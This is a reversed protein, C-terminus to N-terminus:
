RRERILVIIRLTFGAVAGALLGLKIETLSQDDPWGTDVDYHGRARATQLRSRARMVPAATGTAAGLAVYILTKM